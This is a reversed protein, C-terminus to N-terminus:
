LQSFLRFPLYSTKTKTKCCEVFDVRVLVKLFGAVGSWFYVANKGRLSKM